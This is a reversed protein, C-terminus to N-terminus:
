RYPLFLPSVCLLRLRKVSKMKLCATSFTQLTSYHSRLCLGNFVNLYMFAGLVCVCFPVYESIGFVFDFGFYAGCYLLMQADFCGYGRNLSINIFSM